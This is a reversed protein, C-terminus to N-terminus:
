CSLLLAEPRSDSFPNSISAGLVSKELSYVLEVDDAPANGSKEVHWALCEENLEHVYSAASHMIDARSALGALFLYRMAAIFDSVLLSRKRSARMNRLDTLILDKASIVFSRSSFTGFLLRQKHLAALKESILEVLRSKHHTDFKGVDAQNFCTKDMSDDFSWCGREFMSVLYFNGFVSKFYGIVNEVTASIQSCVRFISKAVDEGCHRVVYVINKRMFAKRDSGDRMSVKFLWSLDAGKKYELIRIRTEDIEPPAKQRPWSYERMVTDKDSTERVSCPVDRTYVPISTNGKFQNSVEEKVSGRKTKASIYAPNAKDIQMLALKPEKM